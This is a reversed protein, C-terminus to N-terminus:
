CFLLGALAEMNAQENFLSLVSIRFGIVQKSEIKNRNTGTSVLTYEEIEPDLEYQEVTRKGPNVIWYEGIGNAAYDTFTIGRDRKATGKSLVEVALDPAPLKIQEATM